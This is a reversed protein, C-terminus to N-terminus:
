FSLVVIPAEHSISIGVFVSGVVVGSGHVVGVATAAVVAVVGSFWVGMNSAMWGEKEMGVGLVVVGVAVHGGDGAGGVIAGGAGVCVLLGARVVVGVLVDVDHAVVAVCRSSRCAM